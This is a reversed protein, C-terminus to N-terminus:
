RQIISSFVYQTQKEITKIAEELTIGSLKLTLNVRQTQTTTAALQLFSIVAFVVIM